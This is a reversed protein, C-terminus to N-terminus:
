WLAEYGAAEKVLIGHAAKLNAVYGGIGPVGRGYYRNAFGWWDGAALQTNYGRDYLLRIAARQGDYISAYRNYGRANAGVRLDRWVSGVAGGKISGPNNLRGACGLSSEAWMVSLYGAIDFDPHDEAFAVITYAPLPSHHAALIGEVAAKDAPSIEAKATDTFCFLWGFAVIVALSLILSRCRLCRVVWSPARVRREAM